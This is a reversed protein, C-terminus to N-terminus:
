VKLSLLFAINISNANFSFTFNNLGTLGTLMMDLMLNETPKLAGGLGFSTSLPTFAYSDTVQKTDKNEMSTIVVAANTLEVGAHLSFPKSAFNYTLAAAALPRVSFTTTVTGESDIDNKVGGVTQTGSWKTESSNFGLGVGAKWAASWNGNINYSKKFNVNLANAINSGEDSSEFDTAGITTGFQGSASTNKGEYVTAPKLTISFTYDGSLTTTVNGKPAFEYDAAATLSIRTYNSAPDKTTTSSDATPGTIETSAMGFLAGLSIEPKLTGGGLNFNQGM